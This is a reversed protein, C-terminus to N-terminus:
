ITPPDAAHMDRGAGGHCNQYPGADRARSGPRVGDEPGAWWPRLVRDAGRPWLSWGGAGWVVVRSAKDVAACAIVPGYLYTLQDPPRLCSQVVGFAGDHERLEASV